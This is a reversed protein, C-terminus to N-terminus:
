RHFLLASTGELEIKVRYPKQMEIGDSAGNTPSTGGIETLRNKEKTMTTKTTIRVGQVMGHRVRGLGAVGLGDEARRVTGTSVRASWEM